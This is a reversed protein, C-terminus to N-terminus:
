VDTEMQKWLCGSDSAQELKDLKESHRKLEDVDARIVRLPPRDSISQSSGAAQDCFPDFGVSAVQPMM